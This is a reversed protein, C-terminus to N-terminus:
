HLTLARRLKPAPAVAGNASSTAASREWPGYVVAARDGRTLTLTQLLNDAIAQPDGAIDSVALKLLSVARKTVKRTM